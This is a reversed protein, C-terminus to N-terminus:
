YWRQIQQVYEDEYLGIWNARNTILPCKPRKWSLTGCLGLGKKACGSSFWNGGPASTRDLAVPVETNIPKRLEM